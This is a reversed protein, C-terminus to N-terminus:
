FTDISLSSDLTLVKLLMAILSTHGNACASHIPRQGIEDGSPENVPGNMDIIYSLVDRHGRLCTWHAATLGEDDTRSLLDLGHSEV